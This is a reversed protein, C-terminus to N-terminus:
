EAKFRTSLLTQLMARLQERRWPKEILPGHRLAPSIDVLRAYASTYLVKMEPNMRKAVDALELGGMGPMALDTLLLQVPERGRLTQLAEEGSSAEIVRYGLEGLLVAAIARVDADDEVVLVAGEIDHM